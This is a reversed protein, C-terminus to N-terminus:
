RPRAQIPSASDAPHSEKSVRGDSCERLCGRHESRRQRYPLPLVRQGVFPFSAAQVYGSLRMFRPAAGWFVWDGRMVLQEPHRILHSYDVAFPAPLRLDTRLRLVLEYKEGRTTEREGHEELTSSGGGGTFITPRFALTAAWRLMAAVYRAHAYLPRALAAASPTVGRMRRHADTSIFM